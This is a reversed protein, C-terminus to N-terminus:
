KKCKWLERERRIPLLVRAGRVRVRHEERGGQRERERQGERVVVRERAGANYVSLHHWM